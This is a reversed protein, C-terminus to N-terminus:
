GVPIHFNKTKMYLVLVDALLPRLGSAIAGIAERSLDTTPACADSARAEVHTANRTGM